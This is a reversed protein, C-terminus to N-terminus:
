IAHVQDGASGEPRPPRSSWRQGEDLTRFGTTEIASYHVFVDPGGGDVAIFGPRRPMSGSSPERRWAVDGLMQMRFRVERGRSSDSALLPGVGVCYDQPTARVVVCVVQLLMGLKECSGSSQSCRGARTWM